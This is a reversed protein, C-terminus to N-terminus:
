QEYGLVALAKGNKDYLTLKESLKPGSRTFSAVKELMAFYADESEINLCMMKTAALVGFTLRDGDQTFPGNYRNCGGSGSVRDGTADFIMTVPHQEERVVTKGGLEILTWGTGALTSVNSGVQSLTDNGQPPLPKGSADLMHLTSIFTVSFFEPTGKTPTLTLRARQADYSWTGQENFSTPRELYVRHLTYSRDSRLTITVKIGPCDACPTVGEFTAPQLVRVASLVSSSPVPSSDARVHAVLAASFAILLTAALSFSRM